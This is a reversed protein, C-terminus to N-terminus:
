GPPPPLRVRSPARLLRAREQLQAFASVASPRHFRARVHSALRASRPESRFVQDGIRSIRVHHGDKAPDYTTDPKKDATAKAYASAAGVTCDKFPLM